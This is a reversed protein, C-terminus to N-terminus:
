YNSSINDVKFCFGADVFKRMSTGVVQRPINTDYKLTFNRKALAIRFFIYMFNILSCPFCISVHVPLIENEKWCVVILRLSPVTQM